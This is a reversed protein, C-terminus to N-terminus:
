GIMVPANTLFSRSTALITPLFPWTLSSVQSMTLETIHMLALKEDETPYPHAIHDQFWNRLIDTVHKPLNGRRKKQRGDGYDSMGDFNLPYGGSASSGAYVPAPAYRGGYDQAQMGAFTQTPHRASTPSSVYRPDMARSPEGYTSIPPLNRQDRYDVSQGSSSMAPAPPMAPSSRTTSPRSSSSGQSAYSGPRLPLNSSFSSGSHQSLQSAYQPRTRSASGNLPSPALGSASARTTPGLPSDDLTRPYSSDPDVRTTHM